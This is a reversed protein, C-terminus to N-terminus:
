GLGAFRMRSKGVIETGIYSFAAQSLVAWFGLFKGLAGPIGAYQVLPGPNRWFEFGHATKDPGGGATLIIGLIILGVITLVKISAFWFECEGYVGAGAFNIAFVVVLCITIWVGNNVTKNWYNSLTVDATMLEIGDELDGSSSVNFCGCRLARCSPHYDLQVVAFLREMLWSYLFASAFRFLSVYNWGLTFAFAPDVFRDALMIHGGPLPLYAVMEGLSIM